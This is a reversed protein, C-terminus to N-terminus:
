MGTYNLFGRALAFLIGGWLSDLVAFKPSYDKLIALNTFDYVSYTALGYYFAEEPTKTQLLLYALGIYVIGAAWWVFRIPSGQIKQIMPGALSQSAYLWPLDLVLLLISTLFIDKLSWM